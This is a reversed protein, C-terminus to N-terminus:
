CEIGNIMLEYNSPKLRGKDLYIQLAKKIDKLSSFQCGKFLPECYWYGSCNDKTITQDEWEYDSSVGKLSNTTKTLKVM